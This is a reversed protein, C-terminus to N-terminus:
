LRGDLIGWVVSQYYASPWGYGNNPYGDPSIGSTVYSSYTNPIFKMSGDLRAVNGGDVHPWANSIKQGAMQQSYTSLSALPIQSWDTGLDPDDSFMARTNWQPMDLYRPLTPQKTGVAFSIYNFRYAYQGRAYNSASVITAGTKPNKIAPYFPPNSATHQGRAVRASPCATSKPGRLYEFDMLLAWGNRYGDANYECYYRGPYVPNPEPQPLRGQWEAAYDYASVVFQRLHTACQSRRSLERANSVAPLLMAVLVAVISIVVLLEVLTFASEMKHRM